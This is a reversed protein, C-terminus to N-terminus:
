ISSKTSMYLYEEAIEDGQGNHTSFVDTDQRIHLYDSSVLMRTEEYQELDITEYLQDIQNAKRWEETDAFQTLADTAM